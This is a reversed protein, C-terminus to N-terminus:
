QTCGPDCISAFACKQKNRQFAKVSDFLLTQCAYAVPQSLYRSAFILYYYEGDNSDDDNLEVNSLVYHLTVYVTQSSLLAYLHALLQGRHNYLVTFSLFM